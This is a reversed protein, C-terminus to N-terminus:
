GKDSFDADRGASNLSWPFTDAFFTLYRTMSFRLPFHSTELGNKKYELAGKIKTCTMRICTYAERMDFKWDVRILLFFTTNDTLAATTWSM